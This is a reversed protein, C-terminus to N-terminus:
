YDGSDLSRSEGSLQQKSSHKNSNGIEDQRFCFSGHNTASGMPRSTDPRGNSVKGHCKFASCYDSRLKKEARHIFYTGFGWWLGTQIWLNPLQKIKKDELGTFKSKRRTQKPIKIKEKFISRDTLFRFHGDMSFQQLQPAMSTFARTEGHKCVM